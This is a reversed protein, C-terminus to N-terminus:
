LNFGKTKEQRQYFDYVKPHEKKINLMFLEIEESNDSYKEWFYKGKHKEKWTCNDCDIINNFIKNFLKYNEIVDTALFLNITKYKIKNTDILLEIIIPDYTFFAITLADYHYDNKHNIDINTTLLYKIVEKNEEEIAFMLLTTGNEDQLDVDGGSEIFGEVSSINGIFKKIFNSINNAENLQQYTNIYKM